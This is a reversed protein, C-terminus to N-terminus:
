WLYTKRLYTTLQELAAAPVNAAYEKDKPAGMGVMKKAWVRNFFAISDIDKYQWLTCALAKCLSQQDVNEFFDDYKSINLKLGDWHEKIYDEISVKYILIRFDDMPIAQLKKEEEM